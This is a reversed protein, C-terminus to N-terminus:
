YMMQQSASPPMILMVDGKTGYNIIKLFVLVMMIYPLLVLFWSFNSFGNKCFWSLLATWIFAIILNIGVTMFKVGHFLAIVCSLVSLVFYIKAPTCLKKLDKDM